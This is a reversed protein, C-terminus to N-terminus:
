PQIEVMGDHVRSAYRHAEHGGVDTCRGDRLRFRWRHLPCVLEDGEVWGVGLSGGAHPCRDGFVSAAEGRRVVALRTEGLLILCARGDPLDELRALPIWAENM